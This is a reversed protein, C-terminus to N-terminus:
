VVAGAAPSSGSPPPAAVNAPPRPGVPAPPTVIAGTTSPPQVGPLLRAVDPATVTANGPGPTLLQDGNVFYTALGTAKLDAIRMWRISTHPASRM